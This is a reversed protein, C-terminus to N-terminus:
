RHATFGHLVALGVFCGGAFQAAIQRLALDFDDIQHRAAEGILLDGGFQRDALARDVVVDAVDEGFGPGLVPDGQEVPGHVVALDAAVTEVAAIQLGIRKLGADLASFLASELAVRRRGTLGIV